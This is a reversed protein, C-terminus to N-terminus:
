ASAGGMDRSMGAQADSIVNSTPDKQGLLSFHLLLSVMVGGAKIDAGGTDYTIGKGSIFLQQTIPGSGEYELRIIRPHHEKVHLSSRGVAHSLPYEKKLKKM